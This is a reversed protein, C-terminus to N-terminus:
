ASKPKKRLTLAADWASKTIFWNKMSIGIGQVVPKMFGPLLKSNGVKTVYRGVKPMLSFDIYWNKAGRVGTGLASVGSKSQAIESFMQNRFLTKNNIFANVFRGFRKTEDVKLTKLLWNRYKDNRIFSLIGPVQAGSAFDRLATNIKDVHNRHSFKKLIEDRAEPTSANQLQEHLQKKEVESLKPDFLERVRHFLKLIGTLNERSVHRGIHRGLKGAIYVLPMLAITLMLGPIGALSIPALAMPLGHVLAIRIGERVNNEFHGYRMKPVSSPRLHSFDNKTVRGQFQPASTATINESFFKDGSGRTRNRERAPFLEQESHHAKAQLLIDASVTPAPSRKHTLIPSASIM